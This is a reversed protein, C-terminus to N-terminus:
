STMLARVPNRFARILRGSQSVAEVSLVHDTATPSANRPICAVDLSKVGARGGRDQSVHLLQRSTTIAM